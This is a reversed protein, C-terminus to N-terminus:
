DKKSIKDAISEVAQNFHRADLAIITDFKTRDDNVVVACSKDLGIKRISQFNPFIVNEREEFGSVDFIDKENVVIFFCNPDNLYREAFLAFSKNCTYCGEETLVFFVKVQSLNLAEQRSGVFSLLANYDLITSAANPTSNESHMSCASFFYLLVIFASNQLILFPSSLRVWHMAKM